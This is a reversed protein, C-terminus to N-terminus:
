GVCRRQFFRTCFRCCASQSMIAVSGIFRRERLVIHRNEFDRIRFFALVKRKTVPEMEIMQFTAVNTVVERRTSAFDYLAIINPHRLHKLTSEVAEFSPVHTQMKVVHASPDECM